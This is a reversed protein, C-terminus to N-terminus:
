GPMKSLTCLRFQGLYRNYFVRQQVKNRRFETFFNQGVDEARDIPLDMDTRIVYYRFEADEVRRAAHRSGPLCMGPIICMISWM